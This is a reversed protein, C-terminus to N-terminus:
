KRSRDFLGFLLLLSPLILAAAAIGHAPVAGGSRRRSLGRQPRTRRRMSPLASSASASLSLRTPGDLVVEWGGGLALTLRFDVTIRVVSLGPLDLVWRDEHERPDGGTSIV